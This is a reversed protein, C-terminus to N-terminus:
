TVNPITPENAATGVSQLQDVTPSKQLNYLLGLDATMKEMGAEAAYFTSNKRQDMGSNSRESMTSYSVSALIACLIIVIVLVAILAFGKESSKSLAASKM